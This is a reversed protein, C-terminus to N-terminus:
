ASLSRVALDGEALQSRLLRRNRATQKGVIMYKATNLLCLDQSVCSNVHRTYAALKHNYRDLAASNMRRVVREARDKYIQALRVILSSFLLKRTTISYIISGLIWQDVIM